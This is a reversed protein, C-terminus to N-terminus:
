PLETHRQLFSVFSEPSSEDKSGAKAIISTDRPDVLLITPLVTVDFHNAIAADTADPPRDSLDVRMPVVREAAAAAVMESSFVEADLSRCPGCWDAWFDLLVPVNESRARAMAEQYDSLWEVRSKPGSASIGYLAAALGALVVFKLLKSQASASRRPDSKM